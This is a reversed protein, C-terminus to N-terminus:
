GNKLVENKINEKLSLLTDFKLFRNEKYSYYEYYGSPFIKRIFIDKYKM